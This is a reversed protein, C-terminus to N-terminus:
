VRDQNVDKGELENVLRNLLADEEDTLISWADLYRLAGLIAQLEDPTFTM